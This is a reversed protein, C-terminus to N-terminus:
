PQPNPAPQQPAPATPVPVPPRPAPQFAKANAPTTVYYINGAYVMKLEVMDAIVQLADYLRVDGLTVSVTAKSVLPECRPDLVINAGTQKRLDALVEALPKREAAVSVVGGYIQENLVNASLVPVDESFSGDLSVPALPNVGPRVPPRYAPVILLQSGRVQFTCPHSLDLQALSDGLVEGLTLKDVRRPLVVKTDYIVKLFTTADVEVAGIRRFAAVDVRVVLDSNDEIRELVEELATGDKADLKVGFPKQLALAGADSKVSPAAAAPDPFKAKQPPAADALLKEAPVKAAPTPPDGADAFYVGAGAGGLVGLAVLLTGAFRLKSAAMTGVGRALHTVAPSVAGTGPGAAEALVARITLGILEQLAAADTASLPAALQQDLAATASLAVGRRSLRGQLKKRATSLRSDVTGVPVGLVGAAEANTRGEVLCLVVVSRFKDPLAALEADLLAKLEQSECLVQPPDPMPVEALTPSPVPLKARRGAAKLAVLYAVRYLWGALSAGRGIGRASTALALFVAQFADEADAERGLRRRCVGLVMAGHRRVIGAFAAGDGTRVFRDLLDADSEAAPPLHLRAVFSFLGRPSVGM